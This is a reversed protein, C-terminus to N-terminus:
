NDQPYYPVGYLNVSAEDEYRRIETALEEYQSGDLSFRVTTEYSSVLSNFLSTLESLKEETTMPEREVRWELISGGSKCFTFTPEGVELFTASFESFERVRNQNDNRTSM